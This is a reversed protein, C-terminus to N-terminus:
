VAAGLLGRAGRYGGQKAGQALNAAFEQMNKAFASGPLGKVAPIGQNISTVVSKFDNPFLWSVRRGLNKEVEPVSPVSGRIFRNVVVEVSGAGLAQKEVLRLLRAANRIAPVSLDTVIFVRDSARFAELSRSDVTMSSCDVIVKDYLSRGLELLRAVHEGEVTESEEPCAPAPLVDLGLEHRTVAGKLLAADLRHFSRCLDAVTTPSALDLLVSSDGSQLSGDFFAVKGPAKLALAAAANVALVTSGVGGKSAMFSYVTGATSRGGTLLRYRLKEVAEGFRELDLPLLFFEAAGAKMVEVIHQPRADHSLVVLEAGPVRERFGAVEQSVEGREPHDELIVLNAQVSGAGHGSRDVVRLGDVQELVELLQRALARDTVRLAVKVERSRSTKVNREEEAARVKELPGM